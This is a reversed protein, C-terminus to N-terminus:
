AGGRGSERRLARIAWRHRTRYLAIGHELVLRGLPRLPLRALHAELEVVYGSVATAYATLYRDIERRDFVFEMFALKLMQDDVDWVIDDRSPLERLWALLVRRGAPTLSVTTRRRRSSPDPRGSALLGAARLRKVAPYIAGPGGSFGGMPTTEFVRRLDYGSRPQDLLLGLVAYELRTRRTM